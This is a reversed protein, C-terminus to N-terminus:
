FSPPSNVSIVQAAKKGTNRMRHPRQSSFCYADGAHLLESRGDVTLEIAGEVVVGAEEGEHTYFEKGTSAAPEYIESLMQFTKGARKGAVEYIKLRGSPDSLPTLEGSRYVIRDGNGSSESFFGGLNTGLEALIVKLKSVSVNTKGNELNSLFSAAIKTRRSLERLTLGRRNRLSQINQGIQSKNM